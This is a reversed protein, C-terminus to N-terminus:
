SLGRMVPELMMSVVSSGMRLGANLSKREPYEPRLRYGEREITDLVWEFRAIYAYGALRCRRNRVQAAYAQGARFYARALRVREIVWGRYANSTVDWPQIGKAELYECPINYYGAAVDEFTDRLM